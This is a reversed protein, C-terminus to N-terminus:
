AAKVEIRRPRKTEAKPVELRLVGNIHRAIIKEADVDDSLTFAREYDGEGYERVVPQWSNRSKSGLSGRLSLVQNELTIEIDGADIGPMEVNVFVSGETEYIEAVPRFVRGTGTEYPVASRSKQTQTTMQNAM